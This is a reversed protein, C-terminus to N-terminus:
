IPRAKDKKLAIWLRAVAEELTDGATHVRRGDDLWGQVLWGERAAIQPPINTHKESIQRLVGLGDGCAEILESLRPAHYNYITGKTIESVTPRSVMPPNDGQSYGAEKLEKALEFNM